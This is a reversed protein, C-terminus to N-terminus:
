PRYTYLREYFPADDYYYGVPMSLDENPIALYVVRKLACVKANESVVGEARARLLREDCTSRPDTDIAELLLNVLKLWPPSSISLLRRRMGHLGCSDRIGQFIVETINDIARFIGNKDKDEPTAYSFRTVGPIGKWATPGFEIDYTRTCAQGTPLQWSLPDQTTNPNTTNWHENMFINLAPASNGAGKFTNLLAKHACTSELLKEANLQSLGIGPIGIGPFASAGAWMMWETTLLPSNHPALGFDLLTSFVRTEDFRKTERNWGFKPRDQTFFSIGLSGTLDTFKLLGDSIYNSLTQMIKMLDPINAAVNTGVGDFWNAVDNIAGIGFVNIDRLGSSLTGGIEDFFGGVHTRLMDTFDDVDGIFNRIEPANLANEIDDDLSHLAKDGKKFFDRVQGLVSADEKQCARSLEEKLFNLNLQNAGLQLVEGIMLGWLRGFASGWIDFQYQVWADATNNSYKMPSLLRTGYFDSPTRGMIINKGIAKGSLDDGFATFLSLSGVITRVVYVTAEGPFEVLMKFDKVQGEYFNNMDAYSVLSKESLIGLCDKLMFLMERLMPPTIDDITDQITAVEFMNDFTMHRSYLEIAAIPSTMTARGLVSLGVSIGDMHSLTRTGDKNFMRMIEYIWSAVLGGGGVSFQATTCALPYLDVALNEQQYTDIINLVDLGRFVVYGLQATAQVFVALSCAMSEPCHLIPCVSTMNTGNEPQVIYPALELDIFSYQKPIAVRAANEVKATSPDDAMAEICAVLLHIPRETATYVDSFWLSLALEGRMHSYYWPTERLIFYEATPFETIKANRYYCEYFFDKRDAYYSVSEPKQGWGCDMSVTLSIPVFLGNKKYTEDYFMPTKGVALSYVEAGGRLFTRTFETVIPVLEIWFQAFPAWRPTGFEFAKSLYLSSRALSSLPAELIAEDTDGAPSIEWHGTIDDVAAVVLGDKFGFMIDPPTPYILLPDDTNEDRRSTLQEGEYRFLGGVPLMDMQKGTWWLARREYFAGRLYRYVTTELTANGCWHYPLPPTANVNLGGTFDVQVVGPPVDRCTMTSNGKTFLQCKTECTFTRNETLAEWTPEGDTRIWWQSFEISYDVIYSDDNVELRVPYDDGPPFTDAWTFGTWAVSPEGSVDLTVSANPYETFAGAVDLEGPYEWSRTRRYFSVDTYSVTVKVEEWIAEDDSKFWQGEDGDTKFVWSITDNVVLKIPDEQVGTINWPSSSNPDFKVGGEVHFWKEWQHMVLPEGPDAPRGRQYIVFEGAVPRVDQDKYYEPTLYEMHWKRNSMECLNVRRECNCLCYNGGVTCISTGNYTWKSLTGEPFVGNPGQVYLYPPAAFMAHGRESHLEGVDTINWSVANLDRPYTPFYGWCERTTHCEGRDELKDGWRVDHMDYNVLCALEARPNPSYQFDRPLQAVSALTYFTETFDSPGATTNVFQIVVPIDLDVIATANELFTATDIAFAGWTALPTAHHTHFVNGIVALLGVSFGLTSSTLSTILTGVEMLACSAMFMFNPPLRECVADEVADSMPREDGRGAILLSVKEFCWFISSAFASLVGGVQDDLEGMTYDSAHFPYKDPQIFSWIFRVAAYILHLAANLMYGTLGVLGTFIGSTPVEDEDIELPLSLDRLLNGAHRLVLFLWRDIICALSQAIGVLYDAAGSPGILASIPDEKYPPFLRLVASTTSVVAATTNQFLAEFTDTMHPEFFVIDLVRDVHKNECYCLFDRKLVEATFSLTEAAARSATEFDEPEISSINAGAFPKTYDRLAVGAHMVIGRTDDLVSASCNMFTDVFLPVSEQVFDLGFNWAPTIMKMVYSVFTVTDFWSDAFTTRFWGWVSALTSMIIDSDKKVTPFSWGMKDMFAWVPNTDNEETLGDPSWDWVSIAYVILSVGLLPILILGGALLLSSMSAFAATVVGWLNQIAFLSTSVMKGKAARADASLESEPGDRRSAYLFMVVFLPVTCLLTWWGGAFWAIFLLALSLMTSYLSLQGNTRYGFIIAFEVIPFLIFLPLLFVIAM